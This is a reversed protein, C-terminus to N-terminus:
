KDNLLEHVLTTWKQSVMDLDFTKSKETAKASMKARQAEDDMLNILENAYAQLDFPKILKGNVSDDIIDCATEFSNFAIPVCGYAMAEVLVLGFSEFASTLCFISADNYYPQPPQLGLFDVRQLKLTRVKMELKSRMEGDGVIQLKWEPRKPEVLHWIDLLLDQRKQKNFLAVHLVIKSKDPNTYLPAELTLPNFISTFKSFDRWGTFYTIEGQFKDSLLVVRDSLKFQERYCKGYKIMFYYNMCKNVAKKLLLPRLKSLLMHGDVGYMGRLTNHIVCISKIGSHKAWKLVYNMYPAIGNQYIMLEIKYEEIIRQFSIQQEERTSGEVLLQRPQMERDGLEISLYYVELGRETLFDFYTKSMRNIGGKNSDVIANQFILIAMKYINFM